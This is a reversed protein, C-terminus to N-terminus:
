INLEEDNFAAAKFGHNDNICIMESAKKGCGFQIEGLWLYNMKYSIFYSARRIENVIKWVDKESFTCDTMFGNQSFGVVLVPKKYIFRSSNRNKYGLHLSMGNDLKCIPEPRTGRKCQYFKVGEKRFWQVFPKNLNVTTDMYISMGNINLDNENFFTIKADAGFVIDHAQSTKMVSIHNKDAGEILATQLNHEIFMGFSMQNTSRVTNVAEKQLIKSVEKFSRVNFM